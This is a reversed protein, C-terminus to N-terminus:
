WATLLNMDQWKISKRKELVVTTYFQDADLLYWQDSGLNHVYIRYLSGFGGKHFKSIASKQAPTFSSLSFSTMNSSSKVEALYLGGRTAILYDSPNGFAAVNKGGNLGVLDAKDRLRFVTGEINNEFTAESPKGTNRSM